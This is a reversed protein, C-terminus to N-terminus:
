PEGREARRRAAEAMDAQREHEASSRLQDRLSAMQQDRLVAEAREYAPFTTRVSELDVDEGTTPDFIEMAETRAASHKIMELEEESRAGMMVMFGASTLLKVTSMDVHFRAQEPTLSFVDGAAASTATMLDPGEFARRLSSIIVGTLQGDSAPIYFAKEDVWHVTKTVRFWRDGSGTITKDAHRAKKAKAKSIFEVEERKIDVHNALSLLTSSGDRTLTMITIADTILGIECAGGNECLRELEGPDPTRGYKEFFSNDAMHTDFACEVRDAGFGMIGIAAMQLGRERDVADALGEAILRDGRFWTVRPAIDGPDDASAGAVRADKAGKGWEILYKSEEPVTGLGFSKMTEADNM